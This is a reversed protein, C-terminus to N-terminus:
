KVEEFEVYEGVSDTLNPKAAKSTETSPPPTNSAQGAYGARFFPGSRPLIGMNRLITRVLFGTLKYVVYLVIFTIILTKVMPYPM